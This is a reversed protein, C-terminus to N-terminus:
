WPDSIVQCYFADKLCEELSSAGSILTLQQSATLNGRLLGKKELDLLKAKITEIAKQVNEPVVDYLQVKYSSAAFIM